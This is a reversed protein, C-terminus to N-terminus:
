RAGRRLRGALAEGARVALLGSGLGGGLLLLAPGTTLDAAALALGSMTTAAGCAGTGLLAVAAAPAVPAALLGALVGSGLVNVLLLGWPVGHGAPLLAALALRLGTGGLGGAAVLLLRRRESLVQGGGPTM